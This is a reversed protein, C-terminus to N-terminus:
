KRGKKLAKPAAEKFEEREPPTDDGVFVARGERVYNAADRANLECDSTEYDPGYEMGEHSVNSIFHVRRTGSTKEIGVAM